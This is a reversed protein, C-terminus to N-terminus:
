WRRYIDELVYEFKSFLFFIDKKIGRNTSSKEEGTAFMDTDLDECGVEFFFNYSGFWSRLQNTLHYITPYCVSIKYKVSEV